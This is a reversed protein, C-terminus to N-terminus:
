DFLNGSLWQKNYGSHYCNCRLFVSIYTKFLQNVGLCNTLLFVKTPCVLLVQTNKIVM